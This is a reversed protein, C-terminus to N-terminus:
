GIVNAILPEITLSTTNGGLISTISNVIAGESFILQMAAICCFYSTCTRLELAFVTSADRAMEVTISVSITLISRVLRIGAWRKKTRSIAFVRTNRIRKNGQMGEVDSYEKQM